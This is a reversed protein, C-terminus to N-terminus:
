EVREVSSVTGNAQRIALKSEQRMFYACRGDLPAKNWRLCYGGQGNPRWRGVDNFGISIVARGGEELRLRYDKGDAGKLLLSKDVISSRFEEESIPPEAPAAPAPQTQAHLYPAQVLLLGPALLASALHHLAKSPRRFNLFCTM